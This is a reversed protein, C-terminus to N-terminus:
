KFLAPLLMNQLLSRKKARTAIVGSPLTLLSVILRMIWDNAQEINLNDRLIGNQKHKELAPKLVEVSIKTLRETALLLHHFSEGEVLSRLIANNEIGDLGMLIAELLYDELSQYRQLKPLIDGVLQMAEREIVSIVLEDRDKFYRYLTSRAMKAAKAVDEMNTKNVGKEHFCQVAANLVRDTTQVTANDNEVIRRQSNGM